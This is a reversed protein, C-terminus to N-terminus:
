QWTIGGKVLLENSAATVDASPSVVTNDTEGQAGSVAERIHSLLLGVGLGGERLHLDALETTVAARVAPTDPTVAIVYDVAKLVPALVYVEATVPRKSDLYGQVVAIENADPIIDADGDRVFFVGVTGPGLYNRVTWARTVGACELAWTVYDDADGGHPIVQFSREVRARLAEVSEIDSGGTMGPDLVTFTDGVGAVPQVLTLQLGADADGLTGADVAQLIATNAGAVTAVSAAVRYQRGTDDQLVLDADLVAGAVATFSASGTAAVAAIRPHELRLLALRELTEEDASDPLIQAAIWDMYGYLGFATGAIARALVQADSKRLSDSAVDSVARSILTPLTPTDFPM